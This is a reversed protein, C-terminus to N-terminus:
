CEEDFSINPLSTPNGGGIMYWIVEHSYLPIQTPDGTWMTLDSAPTTGNGLQTGAPPETGSCDGGGRYVQGSTYVNVAGQFQGFQLANVTIGWMNFLDATKYISQTVPANNINPDEVHFVGTSDHTHTYYFCSAYVIEAPPGDAGWNAVIGLGRPLALEQGNLYIGIFVHIHYNNSM